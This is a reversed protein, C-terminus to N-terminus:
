FGYGPEPLYGRMCVTRLVNSFCFLYYGAMILVAEENM